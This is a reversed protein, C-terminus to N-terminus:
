ELKNKLADEGSDHGAGTGLFRRDMDGSALWDALEDSGADEGECCLNERAAVTPAPADRKLFGTSSKLAGEALRIGSLRGASEASTPGELTVKCEWDAHGTTEPLTGSAPGRVAGSGGGRRAKEAVTGGM